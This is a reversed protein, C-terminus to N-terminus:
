PSPQVCGRRGQAAADLVHSSEVGGFLKSELGNEAAGTAVDVVEDWALRLRGRYCDVGVVVVNRLVPDM